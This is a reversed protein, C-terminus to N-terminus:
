FADANIVEGGNSTILFKLVMADITDKLFRVSGDALAVNAGGPHASGIGTVADAQPDFPLGEPQTWPVEEDSEVVLLTNSTGDTFEAIGKGRALDFAAGEGVFVRYPTMGPAGPDSPCAYVAPMRDILAKNHPSDWPEDLHFQNYLEM